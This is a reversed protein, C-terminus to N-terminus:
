PQRGELLNAVASRGQGVRRRQDGFLLYVAGTDDIGISAHGGGAEGLPYLRDDLPGCLTPDFTVEVPAFDVGATGM